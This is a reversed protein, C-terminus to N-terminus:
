VGRIGGAEGVLGRDRHAQSFGHRQLQDGTVQFGGTPFVRGAPERLRIFGLDDFNTRDFKAWVGVTGEAGELRQNPRNTAGGQGVVAKFQCPDELLLDVGGWGKALDPGSETRPQAIELLDSETGPSAKVVMLQLLLHLDQSLGDRFPRRRVDAYFEVGPTSVVPFAVVPDSQRSGEFHQARWGERMGM